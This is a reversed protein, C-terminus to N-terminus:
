IHITKGNGEATVNHSTIAWMLPRNSDCFPTYGDTLVVIADCKDAEAARVGKTMDTGGGGKAGKQLYARLASPTKIVENSHVAADVWYVVVDKPRADAMISAMHGAFIALMEDDISGSTDAVIGVRGAGNAVTGPMGVGRVIMKRQLRRWTTADRGPLSSTVFQRLMSWPSHDPKKMEGLLREIGAPYEGRIRKHQEAAQIVDAPTIADAEGPQGPDHEDLAEQGGKGGGGKPPNKMLDCYIDEPIMSEPYKPDLCIKIIEPRPPAGIKGKVLSDNNPYDLAMNFIKMDFPKGDPGIGSSIYARVRPLHQWALHMIEHAIVFIAEDLTLKDFFEPNYILQRPTVCATPISTSEVIEMKLLLQSFFPQSILLPMCADDFNAM